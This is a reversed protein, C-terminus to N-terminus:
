ALARRPRRRMIGGIAGFGFIMMAWTSPEPVGGVPPQYASMSVGDLFSIPPQGGPTGVAMFSLLQSTSSAVFSMTQSEWPGIGGEPLSFKDSYQTEGGFTVKWRETTPGTFGVNQGAAQWFNLTYTEGVTLGSVTQSLTGAYRPDGTAIIFDGGDPSTAEFPGYVTMLGDVKDATGPTAVYMLNSDSNNPMYSQATWGPMAAVAAWQKTGDAANNVEFSGNTILEVKASAAQPVILAALVFKNMM